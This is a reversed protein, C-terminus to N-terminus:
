GERMGPLVQLYTGLATVTISIGLSVYLSAGERMLESARAEQVDPPLPQGVLDILEPLVQAFSALVFFFVLYFVSITFRPRFSPPRRRLPSEPRQHEAM